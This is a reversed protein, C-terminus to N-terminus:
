DQEDKKAEGMQQKGAATFGRLMSQLAAERFQAFEATNTVGSSQAHGLDARNRRMEEKTAVDVDYHFEHDFLVECMYRAVFFDGAEGLHKFSKRLVASTQVNQRQLVCYRCAMTAM